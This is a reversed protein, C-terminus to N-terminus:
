THNNNVRYMSGALGIDTRKLKQCRVGPINTHETANCNLKQCRVGAAQDLQRVIESKCEDVMTIGDLYGRLGNMREEGLGPGENTGSGIM